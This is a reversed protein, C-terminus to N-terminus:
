KLTLRYSGADSQEVYGQERLTFLIRFVSSKVLGVEAAIEKLAQGQESAALCELVALTKVILEIHNKAPMPRTKEAEDSLTIGKDERTRLWVEPHSIPDCSFILWSVRCLTFHIRSMLIFRIVCAKQVAPRIFTRHSNSRQASQLM